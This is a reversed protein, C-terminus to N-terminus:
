ITPMGMGVSHPAAGEMGDILYHSGFTINCQVIFAIHDRVVQGDVRNFCWGRM